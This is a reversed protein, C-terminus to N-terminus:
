VSLSNKGKPKKKGLSHSEENVQDEESYEVKKEKNKFKKYFIRNSLM